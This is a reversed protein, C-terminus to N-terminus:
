RGCRPMTTLFAVYAAVIDGVYAVSHTHHLRRVVVDKRMRAPKTADVYITIAMHDGSINGHTDCLCHDYVSPSSTIKTTGDTVLQSMDREFLMEQFVGQM